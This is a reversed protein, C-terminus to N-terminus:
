SRLPSQWVTRGIFFPGMRQMFQSTQRTGRMAQICASLPHLERGILGIVFDSDDKDLGFCALRIDQVFGAEGFRHGIMGHERLIQGQEERALQAFAGLRRLPYWIAWRAGEGLITRRPRQLLFDELNPEFGSGYTRGLLSFEPRLRLAALPPKVFVERLATVFVDPNEDMAVVGVGRPDHADAYVAGTLGAGELARGVVSADECDTFALFHVFLRRDTAQQGGAIPAGKERLDLPPQESAPKGYDSV